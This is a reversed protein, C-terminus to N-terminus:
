KSSQEDSTPPASIVSRNRGSQKAQYLAEDAMAVVQSPVLRQKPIVSAAGISITVIPAVPSSNHPIELEQVRTHFAAALESAGQIDTQPLVAVFEEGGYRAL